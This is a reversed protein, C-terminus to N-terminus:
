SCETSYSVVTCVVWLASDWKRRTATVWPVLCLLQPRPLLPAPNSATIGSSGAKEMINVYFYNVIVYYKGM